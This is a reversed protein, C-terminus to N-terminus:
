TLNGSPLVGLNRPHVTSGDHGMGMEDLRGVYFSHNEFWGIGRQAKLHVFLNPRFTGSTGTGIM